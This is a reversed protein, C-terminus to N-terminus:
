HLLAAALGFAAALPAPPRRSEGDRLRHLSPTRDSRLVVCGQRLQEQPLDVRKQAERMRRTAIRRCRPLIENAGIARRPLKRKRMCHRCVGGVTTPLGSQMLGLVRCSTSIPTIMAM